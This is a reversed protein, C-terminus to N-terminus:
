FKLINMNKLHNKHTLLFWDTKLKQKKKKPSGAHGGMDGNRDDANKNQDRIGDQGFLIPFNGSKFYNHSRKVTNSQDRAGHYQVNATDNCESDDM